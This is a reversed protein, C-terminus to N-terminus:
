KDKITKPAVRDRANIQSMCISHVKEIIALRRIVEKPTHLKVALCRRLISLTRDVDM